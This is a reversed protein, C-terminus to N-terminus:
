NRVKAFVPDTLRAQFHKSSASRRNIELPLSAAFSAVFDTRACSGHVALVEVCERKTPHVSSSWATALDRLKVILCDISCALFDHYTMFFRPYHFESQNRMTEIVAATGGLRVTMVLRLM